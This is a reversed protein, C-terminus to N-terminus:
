AVIMGVGVGDYVMSGLRGWVRGVRRWKGDLGVVLVVNAGVNAGVVLCVFSRLRGPVVSSDCIPRWGLAMGWDWIQGEKTGLKKKKKKKKNIKSFM